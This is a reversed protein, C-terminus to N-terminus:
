IFFGPFITMEYFTAQIHMLLVMEKEEYKPIEFKTLQRSLLYSRVYVLLVGSKDSIDPRLPRRLRQRLM